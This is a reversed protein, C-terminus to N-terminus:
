VKAPLTIKLYICLQAATDFNGELLRFNLDVFKELQELFILHFLLLSRRM